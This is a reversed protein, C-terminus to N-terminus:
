RNLPVKKVLPKRHLEPLRSPGEASGRFIVPATRTILPWEQILEKSVLDYKLLPKLIIVIYFGIDMKLIPRHDMINVTCRPGPGNKPFGSCIKQPQQRQFQGQCEM